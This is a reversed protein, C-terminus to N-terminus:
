IEDTKKVLDRASATQDLLRVVEFCFGIRLSRAVSLTSISSIVGRACVWRKGSRGSRLATRRSGIHGASVDVRLSRNCLDVRQKLEAVSHHTGDGADYALNRAQLLHDVLDALSDSQVDHSQERRVDLGDNCGSGVRQFCAAASYHVGASLLLIKNPFVRVGRIGSVTHERFIVEAVDQVLRGTLKGSHDQLVDRRTNDVGPVVWIHRLIFDHAIDAAYEVVRSDAVVVELQVSAHELTHLVPDVVLTIRLVSQVIKEARLADLRAVVVLYLVHCAERWDVGSTM